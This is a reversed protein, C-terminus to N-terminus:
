MQPINSKGQTLQIAPFEPNTLDIYLIKSAKVRGPLARMRALVALQEPLQSTYPGFHVTGLETKLILNSPDQWDVEFVKVTSHNILQYLESWYPRYQEGFGIVKLNPLEFNEEIRKYFSKPILIGQRDLFGIKGTQSEAQNAAVGPLLVTAVPQRERVEITLRPPLLQRTVTAQAIPPISELQKSLQQAQLHLLSQPYSLPILVRIEEQSLLQNGEIDIQSGQRITWNPLTIAWFLGGAISSIMLSRWIAQCSKMRRRSQLEQRRNKLKSSCVSGIGAM